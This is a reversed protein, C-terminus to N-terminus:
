SIRDRQTLELEALTVVQLRKDKDLGHAKVQTLIRQKVARNLAISVVSDCCGQLCKTINKVPDSKGTEFEVCLKKDGKMAVLDAYGNVKFEPKVKYGNKRYYRRAVEVGYAHLLSAPFKSPNMGEQALAQRARTTLGYLMLRGRSTVIEEPIIYGHEILKNKINNGKRMSAGLDRYRMITTILPNSMVSELFAREEESLSERARAPIGRNGQSEPAHRASYASHSEMMGAIMRDDVAGKQIKIHPIAIMFPSYFRNQLKVVATGVPLKGFIWKQDNDLLCYDSAVNVDTKHKLNMTITCGTNAIATPTLTSPMQDILVISEGLERIERLIVETISEKEQHTKLLIHHAEEIVLCHKFQEREKQQMRYHHIWLLLSGIILVKDNHTLSDLELIVNHELLEHIPTQEQQNIVKGMEGYCAGHLTRLVTSMWEAARGRLSMEHLKPLLDALTPWKEVTGDYVGFEKYVKDIARLLLSNSGEGGFYALSIMEVVKKAWVTPETGPPFRLPNFSFRSTKRGLTFTLMKADTAQIMDRYNRKWDFIMFPKGQAILQLLLNFVTNTKGAGTRGFISVHQIWEQEHLGFPYPKRSSYIVDGIRYKGAATESSPPPLLISDDDVRYSQLVKAELLRLMTEIETKKRIDSGLYVLWIKDARAGIIPKLKELIQQM